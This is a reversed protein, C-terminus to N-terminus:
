NHKELPVNLGEGEVECSFHHGKEEKGKVVLDDVLEGDEEEVEDNEERGSGEDAKVKVVFSLHFVEEFVAFDIAVSDEGRGYITSYDAEEESNSM